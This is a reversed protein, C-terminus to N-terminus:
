NQYGTATIYLTKNYETESGPISSDRYLIHLFKNEFSDSNTPIIIKKINSNSSLRFDWGYIYFSNNDDVLEPTQSTSVVLYFFKKITIDIGDYSVINLDMLIENTVATNPIQWGYGNDSLGYFTNPLLPKPIKKTFFLKQKIM